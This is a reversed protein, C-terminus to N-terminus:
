GQYPLGVLDCIASTIHLSLVHDGRYLDASQQQLAHHCQGDVLCLVEVAVRLADEPQRGLRM